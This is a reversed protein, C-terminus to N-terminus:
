SVSLESDKRSVVYASLLSVAVSPLTAVVVAEGTYPGASSISFDFIAPRKRIVVSGRESTVEVVQTYMRGRAVRLVGEEDYSAEIRLVVAVDESVYRGFVEIQIRVVEELPNVTSNIYKNSLDPNVLLGMKSLRTLVINTYVVEFGSYSYSGDASVKLLVTDAYGDVVIDGRYISVLAPNTEISYYLMTAATVIMLLVLVFKTFFGLGGRYARFVIYRFFYLGERFVRLEAVRSRGLLWAMAIGTIFGGAHAFFAVSGIRAYGYIVQLAFWFALYASARVTFCMPLLLIPFCAILSTGPFFMLYAGLIGSIAGSAGVAPIGVTELGSLPISATHFLAAGIGSVLYMVLYRASGVLDEVGKGFIYLFYMNFIIHLVDAHIFMSTLIRIVGEQSILLAPIYGFRYIYSSSTTTFYSPSSTIFYIAANVAIIVITAVPFRRPEAGGFVYGM